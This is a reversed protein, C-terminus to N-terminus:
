ALAPRKYSNLIVREEPTFMTRLLNSIGFSSEVTSVNFHNDVSLRHYRSILQLILLKIDQPVTTLTYGAKYTALLRATGSPFSALSNANVLSPWLRDSSTFVTEFLTVEGNRLKVHYENKSLVTSSTVAGSTKDRDNVAKLETFTTVPYQLLRFRNSPKQLVGGWMMEANIDYEEDTYTEEFLVRDLANDVIDEAARIIVQEKIAISSITSVFGSVEADTVLRGSNAM